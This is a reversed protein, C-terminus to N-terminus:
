LEEGDMMYDFSRKEVDGVYYTDIDHIADNDNHEFTDQTYNCLMDAFSCSAHEDCIWIARNVKEKLIQKYPKEMLGLDFLINHRENEKFFPIRKVRM